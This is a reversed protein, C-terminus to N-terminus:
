QIILSSYGVVQQYDGTIDGSTAYKVLTAKDAGLGISAVLAVTTPIFGCMTIGNMLVTNYLGEPDMALIRDIALRDKANAEAQSEYHTMDTSAVILAEEGIERIAEELAAGLRKCADFPIRSLCIPVIKLGKQRYQLFPIQVEISHEYVHAEVDEEAQPALELIRRALVEEIPVTGFPMQWEGKAMVAIPAGIGTHNPGLIICTPPVRVMSFAAGAVHGSYMYGAHPSVVARARKEQRVDGMLKGVEYHLRAPDGPYFQNAVAPKRDRLIM